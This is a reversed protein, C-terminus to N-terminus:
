KMVRDGALWVCVKFLFATFKNKCTKTKLEDSGDRLWNVTIM